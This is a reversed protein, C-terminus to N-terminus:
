REVMWTAVATGAHRAAKSPYVLIVDGPKLQTVSAAGRPTAIRVTEANQLFAWGSKGGNSWRVLLHPRREIKCRGVVKQRAVGGHDIATVVSGARLEGLYPADSARHVYGHIAGANVRFSRPPILGTQATEAVVLVASRASSGVLLGEGERFRTTCDICVREAVGGDSVSTVRARVLHLRRPRSIAPRPKRARVLRAVVAVHRADRPKLVIGDVGVDLVALRLRAERAGSALAFVPAKPGRRALLNELPIITWQPTEAVVIGRALEAQTQSRADRVVVWIGITRRGDRVRGAADVFLAGPIRQSPKALIRAGVRTAARTFAALRKTPVRRVDVWLNDLGAHPRRKLGM